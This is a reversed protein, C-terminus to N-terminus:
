KGTRASATRSPIAKLTFSPRGHDALFTFKKKKSADNREWRDKILAQWDAATVYVQAHDPAPNPQPAPLHPPVDTPSVLKRLAPLAPVVAAVSGGLAALTAPAGHEGPAPAGFTGAPGGAQITWGAPDVVTLHCGYAGSTLDGQEFVEAYTVCYSAPLRLTELASGGAANAFVIAAALQQHASAAWALLVDDAPVDLILHVPEYRVKTSVRGRQYIAQQVAFSCQQV